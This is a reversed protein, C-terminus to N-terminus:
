HMFWHMHEMCTSICACWAYVEVVSVAKVLWSWTYCFDLVICRVLSGLLNKCLVTDGPRCTSGDESSPPNSIASLSALYALTTASSFLVYMANSGVSEKIRLASQWPREATQDLARHGGGKQGAMTVAFM